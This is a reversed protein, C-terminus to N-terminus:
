EKEGEWPTERMQEETPRANWCRWTKGYKDSERFLYEGSEITLFREWDSLYNNHWCVKGKYQGINQTKSYDCEIWVVWERNRRVEDLTLARPEQERLLALADRVAQADNHHGDMDLAIGIGELAKIVKERDIM